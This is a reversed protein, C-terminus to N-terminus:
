LPKALRDDTAHAQRPGLKFNERERRRKVRQTLLNLENVKAIWTDDNDCILQHIEGSLMYALEREDRNYGTM